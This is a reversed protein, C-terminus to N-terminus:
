GRAVTRNMQKTSPTVDHGKFGNENYTALGGTQILSSREYTTNVRLTNSANNGDTEIRRIDPLSPIWPSRYTCTGSM